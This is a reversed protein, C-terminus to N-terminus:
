AAPPSPQEDTTPEPAAPSIAYTRGGAILRKELTMRSLEFQLQRRRTLEAPRLAAVLQAESVVSTTVGALAAVQEPSLASEFLLARDIAAALFREGGPPAHRLGFLM